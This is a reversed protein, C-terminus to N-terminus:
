RRCLEAICEMEERRCWAFPNRFHHGVTSIILKVNVFHPVHYVSIESIYLFRSIKFAFAIFLCFVPHELCDVFFQAMIEVALRLYAGQQLLFFKTDEVVFLAGEGCGVIDETM